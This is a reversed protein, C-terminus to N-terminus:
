VTVFSEYLSFLFTVIFWSIAIIAIAIAAGTITKRAKTVGDGDKAFIVQVFWYIIVVVAVFTVLWLAINIIYKVFELASADSLNTFQDLNFLRLVRKVVGDNAQVVDEKIITHFTTTPENQYEDGYFFTDEPIQAFVKSISVIYWLLTAFFSYGIAKYYKKM